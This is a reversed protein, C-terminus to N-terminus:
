PVDILIYKEENSDNTFSLTETHQEFDVFTAKNTNFDEESILPYNNKIIYANSKNLAIKEIQNEPLNNEFVNSEKKIQEFFPQQIVVFILGLILALVLVLLLAQKM